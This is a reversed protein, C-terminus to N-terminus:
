VNKDMQDLNSQEQTVSLMAVRERGALSAAIYILVTAIGFFLTLSTRAGVV